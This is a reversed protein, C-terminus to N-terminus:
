LYGCFKLEDYIREICGAPIDTLDSKSIDLLNHRYDPLMKTSCTGSLMSEQYPIKLFNCIDNLIEKPHALLDEFRICINNHHHFQLFKFVKVSYEWRECALEVSQGTRSVKSRVCTRGDRLVFVVKIDKLYVNFFTELVNLKSDSNKLNHDELGFLQETTIKNGYIKDPFRMSETHCAALFATVREHFLTTDQTLINKGVLYDKSFKEFSVELKDHADLLGAVLSTGGRGAGIIIFM